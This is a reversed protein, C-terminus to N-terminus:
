SEGIMMKVLTNYQSYHKQIWDSLVRIVIQEEERLSIKKLNIDEPANSDPSPHLILYHCLEHLIATMRVLKIPIQLDDSLNLLSGQYLTVTPPHDQYESYITLNVRQLLHNDEKLLIGRKSLISDQIDKSIELSLSKWLYRHVKDLNINKKAM